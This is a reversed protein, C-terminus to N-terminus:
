QACGSGKRCACSWAQKRLLAIAGRRCRRRCCFRRRAGLEGAAFPRCAIRRRCWCLRHGVIGWTACLGLECPVGEERQAPRAASNALGAGANTSHTDRVKPERCHDVIAIICRERRLEAAEVGEHEHAEAGQAHHAHPPENTGDKAVLNEIQRVPSHNGLECPYTQLLRLLVFVVPINSISAKCFSEAKKLRM